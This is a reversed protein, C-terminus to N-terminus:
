SGSVTVGGAVGPGIGANGQAPTITVQASGAASPTMVIRLSVTEQGNLAGGCAEGDKVPRVDLGQFTVTSPTLPGTVDVLVCTPNIVSQGTNDYGVDIEFPQGVTAKTPITGGLEATAKGSTAFLPSVVFFFGGLVIVAVGILVLPRPDSRLRQLM